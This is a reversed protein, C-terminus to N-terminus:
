SFSTLRRGHRTRPRPGPARRCGMGCLAGHVGPRLSRPGHAAHGGPGRHLRAPGPRLGERLARRGRRRPGRPASPCRHPVLPPRRDRRREPRGGAGRGAEAAPLVGSRVWERISDLHPGSPVGHFETFMDTGFAVTNPRVIRGDADIWVVTPVNSIAYLESLVHAPDYLVPITFGEVFPRVMDAEQDFAVAVVSLGDDALEDSLAQWGPMDYACGCWSSFTVLVTARGQLEALSHDAGDLGPLTFDPARRDVLAERRTQRPAGVAVVGSQTDIVIPRDLLPAVVALDVMGETPVATARDRVPVCADGNCLGEPRLDWGTAEALADARLVGVATAAPGLDHVEGEWLLVHEVTGVVEAM